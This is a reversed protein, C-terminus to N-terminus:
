TLHADAQSRAALRLQVLWNLTQKTMEEHALPGTFTHDAAPVDSRQTSQRKLCGLWRPEQEAHEIFEKATFDIGSLLVLIPENFQSAADAMRSQFSVATARLGDANSGSRAVSLNKRLEGVAKGGVQGRLLKRWFEGQLLRQLYYHKVHARALTTASRVWPNLLCMGAIRPDRSREWYMLAASAGDCLGWLVVRRVGPLRAQLADVAAAIDDHVEEFSRLDGTSDGMGRYDFRLVPTGHAAVERALLTFHRHSGARYQPGGVVVVMALDPAPQDAPMSLVAVMTDGQCPILLAEETSTASTSNM